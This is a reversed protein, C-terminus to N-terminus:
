ERVAMASEQNPYSSNHKHRHKFELELERINSYDFTFSESSMISFSTLEGNNTNCQPCINDLPIRSKDIYTACWYCKDCLIFIPPLLSSQDDM